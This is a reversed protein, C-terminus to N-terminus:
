IAVTHQYFLSILENTAKELGRVKFAIQDRTNWTALQMALLERFLHSVAKRLHQHECCDNLYLWATCNEVLFLIKLFFNM